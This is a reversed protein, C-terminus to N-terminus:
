INEKQGFYAHLSPYEKSIPTLIAPTKISSTTKMLGKKMSFYLQGNLYSPQDQPKTLWRSLCLIPKQSSCTPFKAMYNLELHPMCDVMEWTDGLDVRPVTFGQLGADSNFLYVRSFLLLYLFVRCLVLSTIKQSTSNSPCASLAFHNSQRKLLDKSSARKLRHTGKTLIKDGKARPLWWGTLVVGKHKIMVVAGPPRFQQLKGNGHIFEPACVDAELKPM